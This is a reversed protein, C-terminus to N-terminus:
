WRCERSSPILGVDTQHIRVLSSFIKGSMEIRCLSLCFLMLLLSSIHLQSLSQFSHNGFQILSSAWKWKFTGHVTGCEVHVPEVHVTGSHKWILYLVADLSVLVAKEGAKLLEAHIGCIGPVKGWKLRNVAALTEVFSPPGCNIPPDDIPITVSRVDLEVAPPDAKNLRDFYGAWCTKM